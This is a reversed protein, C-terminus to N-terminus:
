QLQRRYGNSADFCLILYNWTGINTNNFQAEKPRLLFVESAILSDYMSEAVVIREGYRIKLGFIVTPVLDPDPERGMYKLAAEVLYEQTANGSVSSDSGSFFVRERHARLSYKKAQSAAAVQRVTPECAVGVSWAAIEGRLTEGYIGYQM